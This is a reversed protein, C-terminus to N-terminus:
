YFLKILLFTRLPLFIMFLSALTYAHREGSAVVRLKGPKPSRGTLCTLAELGKGGAWSPQPGLLRSAHTPSTPGQSSHRHQGQSPCWGGHAVEGGMQSSGCHCGQGALTVSGRGTMMKSFYKRYVENEQKLFHTALFFEAQFPHMFAGLTSQVAPSSTLSDLSCELLHTTLASSLPAVPSSPQQLTHARISSCPQPAWQARTSLCACPVYWLLLM